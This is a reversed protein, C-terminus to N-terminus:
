HKGKKGKPTTKVKKTPGKEKEKRRAEAELQRRKEFLEAETLGSWARRAGALDGNMEERMNMVKTKVGSVFAALEAKTKKAMKRRADCFDAQMSSVYDTLDRAGSALEAMLFERANRLSVIEGCLRTMDDTLNGM